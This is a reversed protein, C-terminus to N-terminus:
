LTRNKCFFFCRYLHNFSPFAPDRQLYEPSNCRHQPSTNCQQLARCVQLFARNFYEIKSIWWRKMDSDTSSTPQICGPLGREHCAGRGWELVKQWKTIRARAIPVYLTHLRETSAHLFTFAVHTHMYRSIRTITGNFTETASFPPSTLPMSVVCFTDGTGITGDIFEHPFGHLIYSRMNFEANTDFIPLIHAPICNASKKSSIQTLM